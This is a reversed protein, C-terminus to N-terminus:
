RNYCFKMQHDSDDIIAKILERLVSDSSISMELMASESINGEALLASDLKSAVLVMIQEQSTDVYGLYYHRVENTQGTRYARAMAQRHTYLNTMPQAVVITPFDLLDLGEKVLEPNTIICDCSNLVATRIWNIRKDPSIKAKLTVANIDNTKLISELRETCDREGTFSVYLLVKRNQVRNERIIQIIREEKPTPNEPSYNFIPLNIRNEGVSGSVADAQLRDPWSLFVQLSIAVLQAIQNMTNETNKKKCAVVQDLVFQRFNLRLSNYAKAMDSDLDILELSEVLPPMKTGCDKLSLFLTRDMLFDPYVNASIGPIMRFCRSKVKKSDTTTSFTTKVETAGYTAAFGDKRGALNARRLALPNVLQCIKYLDRAYGGTLTGTLLLVKKAATAIWMVSESHIGNGKSRHAEDVIVLDILGQRRVKKKAWYAPSVERAMVNAKIISGNAADYSDCLNNLRVPAMLTNRCAPCHLSGIFKGLVEKRSLYIRVALGDSQNKEYFWAAKGCEPCRAISGADNAANQCNVSVTPKFLELDLRQALKESRELFIPSTSYHRRLTTDAMIFYTLGTKTNELGIRMTGLASEGINRLNTCQIVTADPVTSLIEEQWKACLNPPCVVLVNFRSTKEALIYAVLAGMLTKGTGMEANIIAARPRDARLTKPTTSWSSREVRKMTGRQLAAVSGRIVKEQAPWPSRLTGSIPATTPVLIEAHELINELIASGVLKLAEDMRITKKM